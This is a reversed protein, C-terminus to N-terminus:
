PAATKRQALARRLGSPSTEAVLELADFAGHLAENQVRLLLAPGLEALWADVDAVDDIGIDAVREPDLGSRELLRTVREGLTVADITGSAAIELTVDAEVDFARGFRRVFAGVMSWDAENRVISAFRVSAGRRPASPEAPGDDAASEEPAPLAVYHAGRDFGRAIIPAPVYGNTPYQDPLGWKKAFTVWNQNMSAQWDIKNAAFTVSGFHHIFVDDCVYIKYGAARVRMCFDDDEFNGAGFREDIGGIEDVVRRDICLCFGIARDVYFGCKRWAARREAAYRHMANVDPYNADPLLQIGAVRNSRPASVGTLPNRRLADIMDELWGETVVVDNNLVVVYEGRAAAIGQNNGGAFGRNTPNYIVRVGDLTRLWDTTEAESGNDVIIVEYPHKTYSRISELAIKTYNPANWSLMIISALGDPRLVPAERKVALPLRDREIGPAFTAGDAARTALGCARLKATLDLLADDLELRQDLRLHQPIEGLAVISARADCAPLVSGSPETERFTAAVVDGGWSLERVLAALWGDRLPFRADLFAIAREGRLEMAASAAAAPESRDVDIAIGPPPAQPSNWVVRAIPAGAGALARAPVAPDDAPGHVFVTIARPAVAGDIYREPGIRTERALPEIQPTLSGLRGRWLADLFEQVSTLALPEDIARHPAFVSVRAGRVCVIRYGGTRARLSLDVDGLAAEFRADFGGLAEFRERSIMLCTLPAVDVDEPQARPDFPEGTRRAGVTFSFRSMRTPLLARGATIVKQADGCISPVAIAVDAGLAAELAALAGPAVVAGLEVFALHPHKAARAAENLGRYGSAAALIVDADPGRLSALTRELESGGGASVIVSFSV